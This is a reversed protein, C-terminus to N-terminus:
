SWHQVKTAITPNTSCRKINEFDTEVLSIGEWNTGLFFPSAVVKQNEYGVRVNIALRSVGQVVFIDVKKIPGNFKTYHGFSDHRRVAETLTDLPIGAIQSATTLPVLMLENM